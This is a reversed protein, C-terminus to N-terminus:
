QLKRALGVSALESERRERLRGWDVGLAVSDLGFANAVLYACLEPAWQTYLDWTSLFKTRVGLDTHTRMNLHIESLYAIAKEVGWDRDCDSLLLKGEVIPWVDMGPELVYRLEEALLVYQHDSDYRVMPYYANREATFSDLFLGTCPITKEYRYAEILASGYFADINELKAHHFQGWRIVARFFIGSGVLRSHLDMAFEILYMVLYRDDDEDRAEDTNYVLLTDSFVISKFNPHQHANLQDIVRMLADVREPSEAVMREFGLVDLYLLYRNRPVEPVELPLVLM